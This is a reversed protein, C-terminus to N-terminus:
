PEDADVEDLIALNPDSPEPDAPPPAPALVRLAGPCSKYRLPTEMWAIEGDLAVRLRRVHGSVEFEALEARDLDRAAQTGSVMTRLVTRILGWRSVVRAVYLGLQGDDLSGRDGVKGSDNDYAGNGVFVFPTRVRTRSFGDSGRLDFRHVPFARLVRVAAVPVARVKGWGRQHRIRDRVAVMAPYVGLASNNVFVRGNVEGIDVQREEGSVLSAAAETLDVPIGLDKAFHNFTGFPLVGVVLDTGVAEGAACNVTGDGGAVVIAAPRAPGDWIRRMTAQFDAPEVIEVDAEAGAAVFAEEIAKVQGDSDSDDVSGAGGNILVSFRM